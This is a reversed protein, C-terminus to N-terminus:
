RECFVGDADNVTAPVAGSYEQLSEFECYRGRIGGGDFDGSERKRGVKRGPGKATFEQFGHYSTLADIVLSTSSDPLLRQRVPFRRM